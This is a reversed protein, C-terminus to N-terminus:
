QCFGWWFPGPLSLQGISCTTKSLAWSADEVRPHEVAFHWVKLHQVAPKHPWQISFPVQRVPFAKSVVVGGCGEAHVQWVVRGQARAEAAWSCFSPASWQAWSASHPSLLQPPAFLPFVGFFYPEWHHPLSLQLPHALDPILGLRGERLLLNM